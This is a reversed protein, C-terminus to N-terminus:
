KLGIDGKKPTFVANNLSRSHQFNRISGMKLAFLVIYPM